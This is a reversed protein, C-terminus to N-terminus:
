HIKFFILVFNAPLFHEFGVEQLWTTQNPKIKKIKSYKIWVYLSFHIPCPVPVTWTFDEGCIANWSIIFTSHFLCFLVICFSPWRLWCSNSQTLHSSANKIRVHHQTGIVSAISLIITLIHTSEWSMKVQSCKEVASQCGAIYPYIVSWLPRLLLLLLFVKRLLFPHHLKLQILLCLKDQFLLLPLLLHLNVAPLLFEM